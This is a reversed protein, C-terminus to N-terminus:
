FCILSRVFKRIEPPAHKRHVALCNGQVFYPGIERNVKSLRYFEPSVHLFAPNGHREGMLYLDYDLADLYVAFSFQSWPGIRRSDGWTGGLEYQFLPFLASNEELKMGRVLVQEAGEVDILFYDVRPIGKETVYTYATTVNVTEGKGSQDAYLGATEGGGSVRLVGPKDALGAHNMTVTSGFSKRAEAVAYGQIDFGHAQSAPCVRMLNGLGEGTNTGCVMIVPSSRHACLIKLIASAASFDDKNGFTRWYSAYLDVSELLNEIPLRRFMSKEVWNAVQEPTLQMSELEERLSLQEPIQPLCLPGLVWAYINYSLAFVFMAFVIKKYKRLM